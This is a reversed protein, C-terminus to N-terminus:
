MYKCFIYHRIYYLYTLYVNILYAVLLSYLIKLKHFDHYHYSFEKKNQDKLHFLKFSSTLYGVKKYEPM